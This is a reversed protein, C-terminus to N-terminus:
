EKFGIVIAPSFWAHEKPVIDGEATQYWITGGFAEAGAPAYAHKHYRSTNGIPLSYLLPAGLRAVLEGPRELHELCEFCVYLEAPPIHDREINAQWFQCVRNAFTREAHSVTEACVDLGLVFRAVMSLIYSGYGTGCGLDVVRRNAAFRAAWGYRALHDQAMWAREGMGWPIFREGTFRM